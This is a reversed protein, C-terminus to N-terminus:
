SRRQAPLAGGQGRHRAAALACQRLLRHVRRAARGRRQRGPAAAGRHRDRRQGPDAPECIRGRDARGAPGDPRGGRRARIREGRLDARGGHVAGSRHWLGGGGRVARRAGVVGRPRAPRAQRALLVHRHPGQRSDDPSLGRCQHPRLRPRAHLHHRRHRHLPRRRRALIEADPVQHRRHRRRAPHGREGARRAQGRAGPRHPPEHDQADARDHRRDPSRPRPRGRACLADQQRGAHQEAGAHRLPRRRPQRVAAGPDGGHPRGPVHHRFAGRDPRRDRHHAQARGRGRGARDM